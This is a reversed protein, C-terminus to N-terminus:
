LEDQIEMPIGGNRKLEWELPKKKLFHNTTKSGVM